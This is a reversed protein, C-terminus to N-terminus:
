KLVAAHSFSLAVGLRAGAMDPHNDSEGVSRGVDRKIAGVVTACFWWGCGWDGETRSQVRGGTEADRGSPQSGLRLWCRSCASGLLDRMEGDVPIMRSGVGRFGCGVWFTGRSTRNGLGLRDLRWGRLTLPGRFRSLRRFPSATFALGPDRTTTHAIQGLM